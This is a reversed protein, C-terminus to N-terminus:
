AKKGREMSRLTHVLDITQKLDEFPSKETLEVLNHTRQFDKGRQVEAIRFLSTVLNDLQVLKKDSFTKILDYCMKNEAGNMWTLSQISVKREFPLKELTKLVRLVGKKPLEFTKGAIVIPMIQTRPHRLRAKFAVRQVARRTRLRLSIKSQPSIPSPM